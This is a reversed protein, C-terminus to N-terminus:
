EKKSIASLIDLYKNARDEATGFFKLREGGKIQLKKYLAPNNIIIEIKDAIDKPNIPNFYLAVDDCIIRAFSLDSTLIPKNLCMAEPYSASFCELLTPLFLADCNEVFAPCESVKLVGVNKIYKIIDSSFIKNYNDESITVYFLFPMNLNRKELIPIVKNLISLNKHLYASCLSYFKFVEKPANHPTDSKKYNMFYDNATNYVTFINKQKINYIEGLRKSVDETECVYYDGDKKLFHIHTTKRLWIMFKEKLSVMRFLPSDKYIYHSYAYGMLHPSKPKWLSPGFVSFTADVNEEREISKMKKRDRIGKIGYLWSCFTYFKFNTPFDNKNINREVYKSLFIVYDNETHKICEYLFSVAVQTVGTGELPSTNILLKM